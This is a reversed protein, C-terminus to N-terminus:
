VETKMLNNLALLAKNKEHQEQMQGKLGELRLRGSDGKWLPYQIALSALLHSLFLLRM